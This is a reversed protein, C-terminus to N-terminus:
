GRAGMSWARQSLNTYTGYDGRHIHLGSAICAAIFCGEGVYYDEYQAVDTQYWREATHKWGYTCHKRNLSRTRPAVELFAMARRFQALGNRGDSVLTERRFQVLAGPPRSWWGRWSLTPNAKLIATLASADVPASM